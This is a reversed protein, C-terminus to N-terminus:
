KKGAERMFIGVRPAFISYRVFFSSEWMKNRQTDNVGRKHVFNTYIAKFMVKYSEECGDFANTNRTRRSKNKTKLTDVIDILAIGFDFTRM